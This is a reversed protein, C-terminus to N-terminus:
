GKLKLFGDNGLSFRHKPNSNCLYDGEIENVASNMGFSMCCEPCGLKIHNTM